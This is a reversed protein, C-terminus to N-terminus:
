KNANKARALGECRQAPADSAGAVSASEHRAESVEEKRGQTKAHSELAMTLLFGRERCRSKTCHSRRNM